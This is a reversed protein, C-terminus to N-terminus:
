IYWLAKRLFDLTHFPSSFQSSIWVVRGFYWNKSIYNKPCYYWSLSMLITHSYWSTLLFQYILSYSREKAYRIDASLPAFLTKFDLFFLSDSFLTDQIGHMLMHDVSRWDQCLFMWTNEFLHLTAHVGSLPGPWAVSSWVQNSGSLGLHPALQDTILGARGIIPFPSQPGTTALPALPWCIISRCICIGVTTEVLWHNWAYQKYTTIAGSFDISIM